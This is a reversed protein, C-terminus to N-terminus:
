GGRLMEVSWNQALVGWLLVANLALPLPSWRGFYLVYLLASAIGAVMMLPRWWGAPIVIGFLAALAALFGLGALGALLPTLVSGSQAPLGGVFALIPKSDAAFPWGFWAKGAQTPAFPTLSFHAAIILLVIVVFRM